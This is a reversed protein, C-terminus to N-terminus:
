FNARVRGTVQIQCVPCKEVGPGCLACTALHGCSIFMIAVDSGECMKCLLEKGTPIKRKQFGATITEIEKPRLKSYLSALSNEGARRWEQVTDVFSQGMLLRM